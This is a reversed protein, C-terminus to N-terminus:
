RTTLGLVLAQHQKIAMNRMNRVYEEYSFWKLKKEIYFYIYEEFLRRSGVSSQGRATGMNCKVIIDFMAALQSPTWTRVQLPMVTAYVECFEYSLRQNRFTLEMIEYFDRPNLQHYVKQLTQDWDSWAEISM